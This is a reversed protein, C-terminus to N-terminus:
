HVFRNGSSAEDVLSDNKELLLCSYGRSSLEFVCACGCVGGGIIIVDFQDQM